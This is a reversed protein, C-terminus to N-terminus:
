RAGGVLDFLHALSLPTTHRIDPGASYYVTLGESWAHRVVRRPYCDEYGIVAAARGTGIQDYDPQYRLWVGLALYATATGDEYGQWADPTSLPTVGHTDLRTATYAAAMHAATAITAARLDVGRPAVPAAPATESAQRRTTRTRRIM